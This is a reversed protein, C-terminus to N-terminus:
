SRWVTKILQYFGAVVGLSLGALLGWPAWGRWADIGYGLGGFLVIGGVLTYSAAAAPGAQQISGHLAQFSRGLAGEPPADPQPTPQSIDRKTIKKM